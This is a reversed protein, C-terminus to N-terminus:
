DLGLISEKESVMDRVDGLKDGLDIKTFILDEIDPGSGSTSLPGPLEM